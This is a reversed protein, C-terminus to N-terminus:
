HSFTIFSLMMRTIKSLIRFFKLILFSQYDILFCNTEICVISVIKIKSLPRDSFCWMIVQKPKKNSNTVVRHYCISFISNYKWSFNHMEFLHFFFILLRCIWNKVFFFFIALYCNCLLSWLYCRFNKEFIKASSFFFDQQLDNSQFTLYIIKMFVRYVIHM